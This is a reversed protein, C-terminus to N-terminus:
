PALQDSVPCLCHDGLLQDALSAQALFMTDRDGFMAAHIADRAFYSGRGYTTGSTSGSLRWDFGQRCIAEIHERKTGHFLRRVAGQGCDGLKKEMRTWNFEFCERLDDNEIRWITKISIDGRSASQYFLASVEVYEATSSGLM